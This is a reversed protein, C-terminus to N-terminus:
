SLRPRLSEVWASGRRVFGEASLCVHDGRLGCRPCTTLSLRCAARELPVHGAQQRNWTAIASEATRRYPTGGCAGDASYGATRGNVQNRNPCVARVQAPNAQNVVLEPLAGCVRCPTPHM